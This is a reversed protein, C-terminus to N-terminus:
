RRVIFSLRSCPLDALEHEVILEIKGEAQIKNLNELVRDRASRLTSTIVSESSLVVLVVGVARRRTVAIYLETSALVRTATEWLWGYRFGKQIYKIEVIVDPEDNDYSCLVADYLAGGLRRNWLIRHSKGLCEDLKAAVAREVDLYRNVFQQQSPIQEPPVGGEASASLAEANGKSAIDPASMPKVRNQLEEV